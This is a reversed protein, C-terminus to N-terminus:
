SAYSSYKYYAACAGESSVMCAGVPTSPTCRVGFLKCDTPRRIGRLVAGCICGKPEVPKPLTVPFRKWADFEAFAPALRLGSAPIIGLGRWEADEPEFVRGLLARAVPNGEPRVARTYQVEVEARHEALQTLLMLIGQLVDVPEFGAIVCPLGKAAVQKYPGVGIIVSVHGPMLFGHVNADPADILAALAPPVTKHASLISFNRVGADRARMVTAAAGPATTEFGVALFVVQKDANQEAIALADLASYVMRIDGGAAKERELTTQSGPVKMMDGFTTLTVGHERHLAVAADVYSVPTVCVPCGPGSLMAVNKPLISHIGARFIATTHTGCVEMLNVAPRDIEGAKAVLRAALRRALDADRFAADIEL